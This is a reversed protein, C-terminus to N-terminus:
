QAGGKEAEVEGEELFAKMEETTTKMGIMKDVWAFDIDKNQKKFDAEVQSTFGKTALSMEDNSAAVKADAGGGSMKVTGKTLSSAPIWGIAGGETAVRNWAGKEELVTLRDGLKVTAVVNGLGSPTSRLESVKMQVNMIKAAAAGVGIAACCFLVTAVIVVRHQLM